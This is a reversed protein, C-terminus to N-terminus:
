RMQTKMTCSRSSADYITDLITQYDNAADDLRSPSSRRFFAEIAAARAEPSLKPWREQLERLDIFFQGVRDFLVPLNTTHHM